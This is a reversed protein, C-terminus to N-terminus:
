TATYLMEVRVPGSFFRQGQLFGSHLPNSLIENWVRVSDSTIKNLQKQYSHPELM